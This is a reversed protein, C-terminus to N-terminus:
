MRQRSQQVMKEIAKDIKASLKEPSSPVTDEAVGRWLLLNKESDWVDIILTGVDYSSVRTTSTGGSPGGYYGYRYWRSPYGYGFHTTNAQFEQRTSTYYTVFVDAGSEVKELGAAEMQREISNVLREHILPSSQSM